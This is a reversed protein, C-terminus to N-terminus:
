AMLKHFEPTDKLNKLDDDDKAREQYESQFKIAAKLHNLAKEKENLLSYVCAINYDGAGAQLQNAKQAKELAEFLITSKEPNEKLYSLLILAYAWGSYIEFTQVGNKQASKYHEILRELHIIKQGEESQTVFNIFIVALLQYAKQYDPKIRLIREIKESAQELLSIKDENEACMALAYLANGLNELGNFHDPTLSIIFNEDIGGVIIQFQTNAEDIIARI